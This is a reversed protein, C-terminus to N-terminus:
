RGPQKPGSVRNAQIGVRVEGVARLPSANQARAGFLATRVNIILGARTFPCRMLRHLSKCVATRNLANPYKKTLSLFSSRHGMRGGYAGISARPPLLTRGPPRLKLGKQELHIPTRYGFGRSDLLRQASEKWSHPASRSPSQLRRVGAIQEMPTRAAEPESASHVMKL